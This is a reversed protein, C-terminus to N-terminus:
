DKGTPYQSAPLLISRVLDDDSREPSSQIQVGEPREKWSNIRKELEDAYEALILAEPRFTQRKEVAEQSDYCIQYLSAFEGLSLKFDLKPIM